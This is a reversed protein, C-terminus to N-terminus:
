RESGRGHRSIRATPPQSFFSKRESAPAKAPACCSGGTTPANEELLLIEFKGGTRANAGRLRAPIVRSNNLVLVDGARFFELLDRFQRHEVNGRRSAFWSGRNM